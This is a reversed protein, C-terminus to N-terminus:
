VRGVVLASLVALIPQFAPGGSQLTNVCRWRRVVTEALGALVRRVRAVFSHSIHPGAMTTRVFLESGIVLGDVWYRVRRDARTSFPQKEAAVAIASGIEEPAKREDVGKMRAFEKRLEIDLGDLDDVQLLDSFVPMLHKELAGAFPNKGTAAWEGFSCFRYDAPTAAIRARVPNMEIYKWCDWVALGYELVVNKFRGAWLHGRRRRPRTRNYWRTFPQQLDSMFQSVDRLQSALRTCAASDPNITKKGEHHLAYRRAAEENDPPEAPIHIIAHTHNGMVQVALVDIAYYRDLAKLRRIFAEKEVDGFPFESSSGVTRNYVHMFTDVGEPKLRPHRM